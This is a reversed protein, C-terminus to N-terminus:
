SKNGDPRGQDDGFLIEKNMLERASARDMPRGFYYGQMIHCEHNFLFASQFANEVGEAVVALGLNGALTIITKVIAEHDSSKGISHVFSTDIKLIDIPLNALYRLSSYGKGFDDIAIKVGLTRIQALVEMIAQPNEIITNETLEITLQKPSINAKEIVREIKRVFFRERLQKPSINVAIEIARPTTPQEQRLLSNHSCVENLVWEGIPHILGKEEALYIFEEPGTKGFEKHQWRLLAEFGSIRQTILDIQPQYLLYLERNQIAKGLDKKLRAHRLAKTHMEESFFQFTNRGTNKAHYMAIDARKNLEDVDEVDASHIAIGISIGVKLRRGDVLHPEDMADLIKQAVRGADEPRSLEDLVIAFEDGGLRAVLDSSRICTGLRKAVSKLLLDGAAHGFNDNIEKFHDMDLFLIAMSRHYREARYMARQEFENFVKRTALNTLQDLEALRTLGEEAEKQLTIDTAIGDIIPEDGEFRRDISRDRLWVWRGAADEIRYEIDFHKGEQFQELADSVTSLDDTHISKSWQFPHKLLQDPTYGLIQKVQTSCYITGRKRSFSYIIDPIGELLHKYREQSTKLAIRQQHLMLFIKVKSILIQADLPKFLYDVAGKEYGAFIHKEEKSIATLFIIPIHQTQDHDRMLSALEFGDMEPMQVDLLAVAFDHHLTLALAENGSRATMVEAQLPKLIKEMAFLNEPLDDVVLLKPTTTPGSKSGPTM